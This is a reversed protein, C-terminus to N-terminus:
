DNGARVARSSPTVNGHWLLFMMFSHAGGVGGCCVPPVALNPCGISLFLFLSLFTATTLLFIICTSLSVHHLYILRTSMDSVVQETVIHHFFIWRRGVYDKYAPSILLHINCYLIYRSIYLLLGCLQAHSSWLSCILLMKVIVSDTSIFSIFIISLLYISFLNLAFCFKFFSCKFNKSWNLKIYNTDM